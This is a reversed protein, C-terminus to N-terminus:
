SSSSPSSEDTSGSFTTFFRLTIRLEDGLGNFTISKGFFEANNNM